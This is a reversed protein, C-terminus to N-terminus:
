SSLLMTSFPFSFLHRTRCSFAHPTARALVPLVRALRLQSVTSHLRTRGNTGFAAYLITKQTHGHTLTDSTKVSFCCCFWRRRRQKNDPLLPKRLEPSTAPHQCRQAARNSSLTTRRMGAAWDDTFLTSCSTTRGVSVSFNKQQQFNLTEIDKQKHRKRDLSMQLWAGSSATHASHAQTERSVCSDGMRLSSPGDPPSENSTAANLLFLNGYRTFDLWHPLLDPATHEICPVSSSPCLLQIFNATGPRTMQGKSSLVFLLERLLQKTTTRSVRQATHIWQAVKRRSDDLWIIWTPLGRGAAREEPVFAVVAGAARCCRGKQVLHHLGDTQFFSLLLQVVAVIWAVDDASADGYLRRIPQSTRESM